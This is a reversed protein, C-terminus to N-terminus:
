PEIVIGNVVLESSCILQPASNSNYSIIELTYSKSADNAMDTALSSSCTNMVFCFTGNESDVNAWSSANNWAVVNSVEIVPAANSGYVSGAYAAWTATNSISYVNSDDISNYMTGRVLYETGRFVTLNSVASSGAETIQITEDVAITLDKTLM